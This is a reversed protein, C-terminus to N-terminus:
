RDEKVQVAEYEPEEDDEAWDIDRYNDEAYKTAESEADEADTAEIDVWAYGIAIRKLKVKFPRKVPVLQLARSESVTLRDYSKGDAHVVVGDRDHAILRYSGEGDIKYVGLLLGPEAGEYMELREYEWGNKLQVDDGNEIIDLIDM